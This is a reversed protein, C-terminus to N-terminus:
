SSLLIPKIPELNCNDYYFKSQINGLSIAAPTPISPTISKNNVTDSSSYSFYGNKGFVPAVNGNDDTYTFSVSSYIIIIVILLVLFLTITLEM